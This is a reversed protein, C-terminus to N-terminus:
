PKIMANCLKVAYMGSAVGGTEPYLSRITIRTVSALAM